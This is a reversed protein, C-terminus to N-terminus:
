KILMMKKIDTFGNTELRYFYVGTSLGAADFDVKYTGASLRENVLVSIERGLADFVFLKASGSRPISFEINTVPNFPNPYNQTLRYENPTVNSVPEIGVSQTYKITAYNFNSTSGISIGTVYVNNSNDLAIAFAKDTNSGAGNYRALWQQTGASNYKITAYDNFSTSSSYGTVYVNEMDDLVLAVAQDDRDGGGTGFDYRQIWQQVGSSNYKLTVYDYNFGSIFSRGTVYVSGSSGVALSRAADVTGPGSYRSAWQQVGASNYKVTAYDMNTGSGLSVGTVYVNGSDDLVVMEADDQLNGPGNYRSAWQQVGASNYKITAYDDDTGSGFSVGTVYVNGFSDIAISSAGDNSNGSGQYRSVWLQVGASNYKITAYDAAFGSGGNSWGTVYVNGSADVALDYALDQANGPGNYIQVWQQVGSSNYKITAYDYSAGTSGGTVYVNGAGDIAIAFADDTGNGPGNYRAEWLQTGANDYKVTLYDHNSTGSISYGTVYVNGSNDVAIDYSFDQNNAPGNYFSVWQQTVQAFSGSVFIILFIYIFKKM